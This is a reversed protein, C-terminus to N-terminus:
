IIIKEERAYLKPLYKHNIRFQNRRKTKIKGTKDTELKLGPDLYIHGASLQELFFLFDAPLIEPDFNRAPTVGEAREVNGHASSKGDSPFYDGEGLARLARPAGGFAAGLTNYEVPHFIM